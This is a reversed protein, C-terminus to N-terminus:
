ALRFSRLRSAAFLAALTLALLELTSGTDPAAEATAANDHFTASISEGNSTDTGVDAFTAGNALPTGNLDVPFESSISARHDEFFGESLWLNVLSSNEPELWQIGLHGLLVSSPFSVSWNDPSFLTVTVGSTSGNYTATLSTPSNETLVITNELESAPLPRVTTALVSISLILLTKKM